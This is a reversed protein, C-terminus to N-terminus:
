LYYVKTLEPQALVAITAETLVAVIEPDKALESILSVCAAKVRPDVLSQAFLDSFQAVIEPDKSM